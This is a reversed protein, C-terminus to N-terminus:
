SSLKWFKSAIKKRSATKSVCYLYVNNLQLLELHKGVMFARQLLPHEIIKKKQRGEEGEQRKSVEERQGRSKRGHTMGKEM